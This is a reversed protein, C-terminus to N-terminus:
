ADANDADEEDDECDDDDTDEYDDEDEDEPEAEAKPPLVEDADFEVGAEERLFSIVDEVERNGNYEVAAGNGGAPYLMLTPFGRVKASPHDVENQTADIQAVLVSSVASLRRTVEAYDPAFQKCYACWPAYFMLLVDREEDLVIREFNEATVALAAGDVGISEEDETVVEATLRGAFYDDVFRRLSAADVEADQDMEYRLVPLAESGPPGAEEPAHVMMVVPTLEPDAGFHRWMLAHSDDVVLATFRRQNIGARAVEQLAAVARASEEADEPKGSTFMMLHDPVNPRFLLSATEQSFHTVADLKNNDVFEGITAASVFGSPSSPEFVASKHVSKRFLKIAPASVGFSEAVAPDQSISFQITSAEGIEVAVELFTRAEASDESEFFGIVFVPHKRILARAEAGSDVVVRTTGAKRRLWDVMQPASRGGAYDTKTEGRFLLVSPIGTIAYEKSLERHEGVDASAFVFDSDPGLLEEAKLLLSEARRCHFCDENVFVVVLGSQAEKARLKLDAVSSLTLLSQASAGEVHGDIGVSSEMAMAWQGSLWLTSVAAAAYVYVALLCPSQNTRPM